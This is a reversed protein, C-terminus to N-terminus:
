KGPSTKVEDRLYIFHFYIYFFSFILSLFPHSGTNELVTQVASSHLHTSLLEQLVHESLLLMSVISFLRQPLIRDSRPKYKAQLKHTPWTVPPVPVRSGDEEGLRKDSNERVFVLINSQFAALEKGADPAQM